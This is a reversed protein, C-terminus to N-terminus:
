LSSRFVFSPYPISLCCVSFLKLFGGGGWFSRSSSAKAEPIVHEALINSLKQQLITLKPIGENHQLCTTSFPFFNLVTPWILNPHM